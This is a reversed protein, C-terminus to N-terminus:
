RAPSRPAAAPRPTAGADRDHRQLLWPFHGHHRRYLLGLSAAALHGAYVALCLAAYAFPLVHWPSPASPLLYLMQREFVAATAEAMLWAALAHLAVAFPFLGAVALYAPGCARITGLLRPPSLNLPTTGAVCTLLVAPFLLTGAVALGVALVAAVTSGTALLLASPGYCLALAFALQLLPALVDDTPSVDRLPPPLDDAGGPGIEDVVNVYHAVALVVLIVGVAAVTFAGGVSLVALAPLSALPLFTMVLVVANAPKLLELPLSRMAPVDDAGRDYHLTPATRPMPTVCGCDPCEVGVGPHIQGM